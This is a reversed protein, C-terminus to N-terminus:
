GRGLGDRWIRSSGRRDNGLGVHWLRVHKDSDAQDVVSLILHIMDASHQIISVSIPRAIWGETFVHLPHDNHNALLVMRTVLTM